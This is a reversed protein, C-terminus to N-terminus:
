EGTKTNINVNFLRDLRSLLINDWEEDPDNVAKVVLPRLLNLYIMDIINLIMMLKM